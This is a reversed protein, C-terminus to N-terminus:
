PALDSVKVQHVLESHLLHMNWRIPSRPSSREAQEYFVVGPNRLNWVRIMEDLTTMLAAISLGAKCSMTKNVNVNELITSGPIVRLDEMSCVTLVDALRANKCVICHRVQDLKMKELAEAVTSEKTVSVFQNCKAKTLLAEVCAGKYISLWFKYSAADAIQNCGNLALWGDDLFTSIYNRAGDPFIVVFVKGRNEPLKAMRLCAALATGSSGGALIGECRIIQRATEFSETDAVQVRATLRNSPVSYQTELEGPTWLM